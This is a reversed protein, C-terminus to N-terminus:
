GELMKFLEMYDQAPKSHPAYDYLSVQLAQAERISVGARIAMLFSAGAEKGRKQIEGLLHRNIRPRSDYRTVIIGSVDLARSKQIQGAVDMIQYFGQLSNVDAELPILLRDSAWLANYTLEGLQPPTDIIIHSYYEKIPLLARELRRASGQATRLTALDPSAAIVDIGQETEQVAKGPDEGRILQFAGPKGVDAGLIFSLNGQPDLDICLVREGKHAAAQALAGATSTKGTGGKVIALSLVM